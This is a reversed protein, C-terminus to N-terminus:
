FGFLKLLLAGVLSVLFMTLCGCGSGSSPASHGFEREFEREEEEMDSLMMGAEFADIHGDHDLDYFDKGGSAFDALWDYNDKDHKSM